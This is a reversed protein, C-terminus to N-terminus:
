NGPAIDPRSGALMIAGAVASTGGQTKVFIGAIGKGAPVRTLLAEPSEYTVPPSFERGFRVKALPTFHSGVIQLEAGSSERTERRTLQKLAPTPSRCCRAFRSSSRM